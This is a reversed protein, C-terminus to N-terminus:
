EKELVALQAILDGSDCALLVQQISDFRQGSLIKRFNRPVIPLLWGDSAKKPWGEALTAKRSTAVLLQDKFHPRRHGRAM